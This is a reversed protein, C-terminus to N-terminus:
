VQMKKLVASIGVSGFDEKGWGIVLCKDLNYTQASSSYSPPLCMVGINAKSTDAAMKLGLLALDYFVGPPYYDPHILVTNVLIDQHSISESTSSADWEGLSVKLSGPARGSVCHAATLVVSEGVLSGGCLFGGTDADIVAAMWPFEGFYTLSSSSSSTIKPSYRTLVPDTVGCGTTLASSSTTPASTTVTTAQPYTCCVQGLTCYRGGRLNFVGAGDTIIDATLCRNSEVCTCNTTSTGPVVVGLYRESLFINSTVTDSPPCM